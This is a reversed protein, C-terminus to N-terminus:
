NKRGERRLNDKREENGLEREGRLGKGGDRQERRGGLLRHLGM